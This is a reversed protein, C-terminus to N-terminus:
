HQMLIKDQSAYAVYGYRFVKEKRKQVKIVRQKCHTKHLYQFLFTRYYLINFSQGGYIRKDKQFM